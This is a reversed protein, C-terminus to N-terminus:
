SCEREKMSADRILIYLVYSPVATSDHEVVVTEGPKIHSLLDIIQM